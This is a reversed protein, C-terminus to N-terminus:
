INFYFKLMANRPRLNFITRHIDLGIYNVQTFVRRNFINNVELKWEFRKWKYSINADGFWTNRGVDTLNTYNEEFAVNIGLNKLPYLNIDLRASCQRTTNSNQNNGHAYSKNEGYAIGFALGMWNIPTASYVLNTSWYQSNYKIMQQNILRSGIYLSYNGYLKVVSEWFDFGKNINAISQFQNTIVNTAVINQITTIGEYEYSSTINNRMQNWSTAANGFLQLMSNSYHYEITSKIAHDIHTNNTSSEIYTLYNSMVIGSLANQRNNRNKAYSADVSFWSKGLKYTYKIQPNVNLYNWSHNRDEDQLDNLWQANYSVPLTLEFYSNNIPYGIRAEVGCDAKGFRFKNTTLLDIIRTDNLASSVAEIDVVGFASINVTLKRIKLFYGTRAEGKINDSTYTQMADVNDPNCCVALVQPKHNWGAGVSLDWANSGSNIVLHAKDSISFSPNDLDQNVTQTEDSFSTAVESIGTTTNWATQFNFSNQAYLKETNKKYEANGNLSHIYNQTELVQSIKRYGNEPLYQEIISTGKERLIDDAYSLAFSLTSLSDLKLLDNTRITNTRNLLYRSQKVGPTGPSVVSLIGNDASLLNNGNFDQNELLINDGSNNGKYVTLSQGKKGFYMASAEATWLWPRYGVGAMGNLSFIGKATEKLKLNITVDDTPMWDKLARVPQHNQYIQVSAVDNASINNTAIGYRGQLLDMDEVYFNKITKGNFSIRGNESVELGPMKKIVDGIVRDDDDQYAGVRYSLTDGRQTIKDAVVSVEKLSTIVEKMVVDVTKSEIALKSFSTRFGLMASRLILSDADESIDASILYEGNANANSYGKISKGILLAVIAPLPEGEKDTVRGSITVQVDAFCTTISFIVFLICLRSKM